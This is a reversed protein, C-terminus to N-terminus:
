PQEKPTAATHAAQLAEELEEKTEIYPPLEAGCKYCYHASRKHGESLCAHCTRTTIDKPQVHRMSGIEATVIATPVAIISWGIMMAASAILRGLETKPALDGYGVTTITTIAWYMATPISTFGHAPGEVIYILTGIILVMMMAISLFVTIKFRSELLARGLSQYAEVYRVLKFIRFIRLLRLIRISMLFGAHPFLLWLYSPLISFLDVLGNFSTVYAMPKRVCVLRLIYEITFVITFMWELGGLQSGFHRHFFPISDTVVAIISMLVMIILGIDFMRGAPTDAEFIITYVKLRWGSLPRGFLRADHQSQQSRVHPERLLSYELAANLQEVAQRASFNGKSPAPQKRKPKM